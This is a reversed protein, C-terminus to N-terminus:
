STKLSGKIRNLFFKVNMEFGGKRDRQKQKEKSLPVILSLLTCFVNDVMVARIKRDSDFYLRLPLKPLQSLFVPCWKKEM